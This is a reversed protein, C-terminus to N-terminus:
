PKPWPKTSETIPAGDSTIELRWQVGVYTGHEATKNVGNWGPLTIDPKQTVVYWLNTCVNDAADVSQYDNNKGNGTCSYWRKKTTGLYKWCRDIPGCYPHGWRKDGSAFIFKPQVADAFLQSTSAASGHHGLKLATSRLFAKNAHKYREMIKPETIKSEADGTLMVKKGKYEFMVVLSKPNTAKSKKQPLNSSLLYMKTEEDTVGKRHIWRPEVAGTVANQKDYDADGLDYYEKSAYWVADAVDKNNKTYESWNGGFVLNNIKLETGDKWGNEEWQKKIGPYQPALDGKILWKLKNWHDRDPLSIFLYELTPAALGRAKCTETIRKFLFLASAKAPNKFSSGREGFDFLCLEANDRPPLEILTGDGMGVDMFEFAIGNPM